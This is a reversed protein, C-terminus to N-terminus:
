ILPQDIEKVVTTIVIKDADPTLRVCVDVRIKGNKIDQLKNNTLDCIIKYEGQWLLTTFQNLVTTFAGIIGGLLESLVTQGSEANSSGANLSNIPQFQAYGATIYTQARIMALTIAQTVFRLKLDTANTRVGHINPALKSALYNYTEAATLDVDRPNYSLTSIETIPFAMGAYNSGFGAVSWENVFNASVLISPPIWFATSIDKWYNLYIMVNGNEGKVVSDAYAKYQQATKPAQHLITIGNLNLWARIIDGPELRIFKLLEAATPSNINAFSAGGLSRLVKGDPMEILTNVPYVTGNVPPNVITLATTVSYITNDWYFQSGVTHASPKNFPVPITIGKHKTIDPNPADVLAIGCHKKSLKELAIAIKRCDSATFQAFAAPAIFFGVPVRGIDESTMKDISKIYDAATVTSNGVVDAIALLGATGTVQSISFPKNTSDVVGLVNTTDNYILLGTSEILAKLKPQFEANSAYELQYSTGNISVAISNGSIKAPDITIQLYSLTPQVDIYEVTTTDTMKSYIYDLAKQTIREAETSIVFGTTDIPKIIRLPTDVVSVVGLPLQGFVRVNTFVDSYQTNRKIGTNLETTIYPM